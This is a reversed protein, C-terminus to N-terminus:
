PKVEDPSPEKAYHKIAAYVAEYCRNYIDVRSQGTIGNRDLAEHVNGMFLEVRSDGPWWPKPSKSEDITITRSM